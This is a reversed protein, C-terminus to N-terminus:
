NTTRVLRLGLLAAILVPLCVMLDPRVEPRRSLAEAVIVFLYFNFTLLLGIGVGASSERRHARIGLPMGLLAFTLCSASLCLRKNLEVALGMRRRDLDQATLWPYRMQMGAIGDALDRITLDKETVRYARRDMANEIKVLMRGLYAPGPVEASFPEVRVGYLEAIVDRGNEDARMVGSKAQIERKLKSKRVDYIRVNYIRGEKKRGVYITLDPFEDIFRGEELLELPSRVGLSAILRRCAEHSVPSVSDNIWLCFGACLLSTMLPMRLVTWLNLGCAKMATIEGDASMKGFVLLSATLVSMPISFTLAGPLGWLLVLVVPRWPVGRALLEVIEFIAGISIVFTFVVLTVAFSALFGRLLYNDITRV